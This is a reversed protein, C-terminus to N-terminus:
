SLTEVIKLELKDTETDYVAFTPKHFVGALEGPNVVRCNGVQSEWPKHTHGHFVIDYKGKRAIDEAVEPFHNFAIKKNGIKIEKVGSFINANEIKGIELDHRADANGLTINIEGSFSSFGEKLTARTCVDGCHLILKINERNLWDVVRKVNAVNDHSDSIIAIKM